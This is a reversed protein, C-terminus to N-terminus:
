YPNVSIGYLLTYVQDKLLHKSVGRLINSFVDAHLNKFRIGLLYIYVQSIFNRCKMHLATKIHEIRNNHTVLDHDLHHLINVYHLVYNKYFISNATTQMLKHLYANFKNNTDSKLQYIDSCIDKFNSSTIEAFSLLHKKNVSFDKNSIDKTELYTIYHEKSMKRLLSAKTSEIRLSWAPSLLLLSGLYGINRVNPPHTVGPPLSRFTSM